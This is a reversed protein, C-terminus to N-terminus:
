KDLFKLIENYDVCQGVECDVKDNIINYNYKEIITTKNNIILSVNVYLKNLEFYYIYKYSINSKKDFYYYILQNSEINYTFKGTSDKFENDKNKKFGLKLLKKVIDNEKINSEKLNKRNEKFYFLKNNSFRTAFHIKGDYEKKSTNDIVRIHMKNYSEDIKYNKMYSNDLEFQINKYIKDYHKLIIEKKGEIIYIDITSNEEDIEDDILIAGFYFYDQLNTDVYVGSTSYFYDGVVAIDYLKFKNYTTLFFLLLILFVIFSIVVIFINRYKRKLKITKKEYETVITNLTIEDKDEVKFKLLEEFQLELIVAIKQIMDIDPISANTELRSVAKDSVHLISALEKQTLKKSKRKKSIIEGFTKENM